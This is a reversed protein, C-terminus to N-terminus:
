PIASYSLQVIKLKPSILVRIIEDACDEFINPSLSVRGSTGEGGDNVEPLQWVSTEGLSKASLHNM